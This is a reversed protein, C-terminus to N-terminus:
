KESYVKGEEKGTKNCHTDLEAELAGRSCRRSSLQPSAPMRDWPLAEGGALAADGLLAALLMTSWEGGVVGSLLRDVRDVDGLSYTMLLPTTSHGRRHDVVARSLSHSQKLSLASDGSIIFSFLDKGVLSLKSEM